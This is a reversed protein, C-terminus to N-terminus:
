TAFLELTRILEGVFRAIPNLIHDATKPTKPVVLRFTWNLIRPEIPPWFEIYPQKESGLQSAFTIRTTGEAAMKLANNRM